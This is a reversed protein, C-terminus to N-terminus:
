RPEDSADETEDFFDGGAAAAPPPPERRALSGLGARFGRATAASDVFAEEAETQV